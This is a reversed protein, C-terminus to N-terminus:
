MGLSQWIRGYYNTWFWIVFIGGGILVTVYIAVPVWQALMQVKRGGDDQYYDRLRELTEDLKGSVEGATYQNTFMDPFL